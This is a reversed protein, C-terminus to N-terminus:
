KTLHKYHSKFKCKLNKLNFFVNFCGVHRINKKFFLVMVYCRNFPKPPTQSHLLLLKEFHKKASFHM